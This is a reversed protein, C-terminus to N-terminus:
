VKPGALKEIEADVNERQVRDIMEKISKLVYERSAGLPAGELAAVESAKAEAAARETSLQDDPKPTPLGGGNTVADAQAAAVASILDSVDSSWRSDLGDDTLHALVKRQDSKSLVTETAASGAVVVSWLRPDMDLVTTRVDDPWHEFQSLITENARDSLGVTGPLSTRSNTSSALCEQIERREIASLPQIPDMDKIMRLQVYAMLDKKYSKARVKSQALTAHRELTDHCTDTVIAPDATEDVAVERRPKDDPTRATMADLSRTRQVRSRTTRIEADKVRAGLNRWWACSSTEGAAVLDLNLNYRNDPITAMVRDRMVDEVRDFVRDASEMDGNFKNRCVKEREAPGHLGLQTLSELISQRAASEEIDGNIAARAIVVNAADIRDSLRDMDHTHAARHDTTM